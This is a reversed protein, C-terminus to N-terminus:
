FVPYDPLEYTTDNAVVMRSLAVRSRWQSLRWPLDDAENTMQNDHRRYIYTTESVAVIDGFGVVLYQVLLDQAYPVAPYGGLKTLLRTEMLTGVSLHPLGKLELALKTTEGFKRHGHTSKHHETVRSGDPMEISITGVSAKANNSQVACLLIRLANPALKDDADLPLVWKGQARSLAMNRCAAAYMQVGCSAVKLRSDARKLLNIIDQEIDGNGDLELLWEWREEDQTLLSDWCENLWRGGGRKVPTIVSIVPTETVQRSKGFLPPWIAGPPTKPAEDHDRAPIIKQIM